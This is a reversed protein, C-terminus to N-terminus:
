DASRRCGSGRTGSLSRRAGPNNGPRRAWGTGVERKGAAANRGLLGCAGPDSNSVWAKATEKRSRARSCCHAREGEPATSIIRANRWIIGEGGRGEESCSGFARRPGESPDGGRAALDGGCPGGPPEASAGFDRPAEGKRATSCVRATLGAWGGARLRARRPATM